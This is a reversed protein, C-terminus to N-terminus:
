IVILAWLYFRERTGTAMALYKCFLMTRDNQYLHTLVAGRSDRILYLVCEEGIALVNLHQSYRYVWNLTISDDENGRVEEEDRRGLLKKAFIVEPAEKAQMRVARVLMFASLLSFLGWIGNCEKRAINQDKGM